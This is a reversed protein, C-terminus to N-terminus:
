LEPVEDYGDAHAALVEEDGDLISGLTNLEDVSIVGNRFDKMGFLFSQYPGVATAEIAEDLWANFEGETRKLNKQTTTGDAAVVPATKAKLQRAAAKVAKATVKKKGKKTVPAAEVAAAVVATRDEPAIDLVTMATDFSIEGHALKNQTDADLLLVSKRRSVWAPKQRLREAIQTDTLGYNESLVNIFTAEDVPNLATRTEAANEFWTLFLAELEGDKGQKVTKCRGTLIFPNKESYTFGTVDTLGRENIRNAALARTMGAILIPHRNFDIWYAVDQLQGESLLSDVMAQIQAETREKRGTFKPAYKLLDSPLFGIADKKGYTEVNLKIM